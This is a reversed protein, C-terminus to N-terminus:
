SSRLSTLFFDTLVAEIAARQSRLIYVHYSGPILYLQKPQQAAAHLDKADQPCITFDRMGHMLLLPRPAIQDILSLPSVCSPDVPAWRKGWHKLWAALTPGAPGMLMRGRQEIARDLDAFAAHTAVATFRDDKAATMISVAAGMSRGYVGLKLGNMERRALLYDAAGMLDNVEHYGITCLDGESRGMARFDFLLVHLGAAHLLRASPLMEMRNAPHGHCLIVGGTAHAAPIFWGSLNLADRSPFSVDEIGLRAADLPKWIPMRIPHTSLWAFSYTGLTWLAGGLVVGAGLALPVLRRKASTESVDPDDSTELPYRNM